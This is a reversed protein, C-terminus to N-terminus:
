LSLLMDETLASRRLFQGEPEDCLLKGGSVVLNGRLFVKSVSGVTHYNEYPSYGARSEMWEAHLIHDARPDYTVLDADSGPLLCGKRPYLGCLKAANESMLRCYASLSLRRGAAGHGSIGETYLLEARTEVGPLGGPIKTFDEAGARKQEITFSCHDTSVTQIERHRLAYWLAANDKKSRLPPACVFSAASDFSSASYVSDELLLYHPCTEVFVLQGRRRAERVEHLAAETSLHAIMVPADAAQAIRLLRSVAEAEACDPRSLPHSLVDATHGAAKLEATRAEIIGSNECHVICLGGCSHVKKLVHYITKDDTQMAPYTMYLKFGSIGAAFMKEIEEDTQVTPDDVTMHFGYDCFCNGNAKRNWLELGYSLTEGKDPAAFDVITTTGGRLAARSGSRFDDATTTGCVDLDFHTHADIFGPFIYQGTVDIVEADWNADRLVHGTKKITEGEILVDARRMGSGSVVYGGRLVKQNTGM